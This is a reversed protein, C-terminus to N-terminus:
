KLDGETVTMIISTQKVEVLKLGLENYCVGNDIVLVNQPHVLERFVPDIFVGGDIGILGNSYYIERDHGSSNKLYKFFDSTHWHGCVLTHGTKEEELFLDDLYQAWPCGWTADNWDSQSANRWDKNFRFKRNKIYYNPLDDDKHVPIFSHVFIFKNDLEFYNKWESSKLWKTIPHERVINKIDEWASRSGVKYAQENYNYTDENLLDEPIQAIQCFTSVTGNSFDYNEPFQKNLLEFYLQEHNGRILIRRSKPVSRIFNYVGLTDSGRDFLDGVVILAHNPDKKNFGALKLASKLEEAFSHIDSVVFYKM